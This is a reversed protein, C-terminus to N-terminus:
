QALRTVLRARNLTTLVAATTQARDSGDGGGHRGGRVRPGFRSRFMKRVDSKDSKCPPTTCPPPTPGAANPLWGPTPPSAPSSACM